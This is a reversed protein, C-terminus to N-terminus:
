RITRRGRRASDKAAQGFLYSISEELQTSRTSNVSGAHETKSLISALQCSQEFEFCGLCCLHPDDVVTEDETHSSKRSYHQSYIPPAGLFISEMMAQLFPGSIVYVIMAIDTVQESTVTTM